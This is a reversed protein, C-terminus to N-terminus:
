ITTGEESHSIKRSLRIARCRYLVADYDLVYKRQLRTLSLGQDSDSVLSRDDPGLQKAAAQPPADYTGSSILAFICVMSHEGSDCCVFM